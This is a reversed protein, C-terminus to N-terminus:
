RRGLRAAAAPGDGGRLVRALDRAVLEVRHDAVEADLLLALGLALGCARSAASIDMSTQAMIPMAIQCKVTNRGSRKQPPITPANRPASAPATMTPKATLPKVTGPWSSVVSAAARSAIGPARAPM